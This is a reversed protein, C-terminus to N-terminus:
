ISCVAAQLERLIEDFQEKYLQHAGRGIMYDVSDCEEDLSSINQILLSWLGPPKSFMTAKQIKTEKFGDGDIEIKTYIECESRGLIHQYRYIPFSVNIEKYRPELDRIKIKVSQRM